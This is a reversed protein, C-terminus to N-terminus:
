FKNVPGTEDNICCDCCTHDGENEEVRAALEAYGAIDRADDMGNDGHAHRGVKLLALMVAAQRTTIDPYDSLYVNWLRRITAMSQVAPGNQAERENVIQKAEDL